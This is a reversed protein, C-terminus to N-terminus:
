TARSQRAGKRLTEVGAKLDKFRKNPLGTAKRVERVIESAKSHLKAGAETLHIRVQREDESDRTRKVYALTELRKLMPTLTNSQLFLKRGLENVTQGDEGWLLSM